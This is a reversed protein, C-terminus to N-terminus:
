ADSLEKSGQYCKPTTFEAIRNEFTHLGAKFLSLFVAVIICCHWHYDWTSKSLMCFEHVPMQSYYMCTVYFVVKIVSLSLFLFFLVVILFTDTSFYSKILVCLMASFFIFVVCLPLHGHWAIVAHQLLTCHGRSLGVFLITGQLRDTFAQVPEYACLSSYQYVYMKLNWMFTQLSLTLCWVYQVM